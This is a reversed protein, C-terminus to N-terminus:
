RRKTRMDRTIVRIDQSLVWSLERAENQVLREALMVTLEEVTNDRTLADDKIEVSHLFEFVM